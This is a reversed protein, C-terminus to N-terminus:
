IGGGALAEDPPHATGVAGLSGNYFYDEGDKRQGRCKLFSTGLVVSWVM